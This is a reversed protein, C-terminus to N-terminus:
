RGFGELLCLSLGRVYAAKGRLLAHQDRHGGAPSLTDLDQLVGQLAEKCGESQTAPVTLSAALSSPRWWGKGM